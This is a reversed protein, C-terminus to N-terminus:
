QEDVEPPVVLEEELEEEAEEGFVKQKRLHEINYLLNHIDKQEMELDAASDSDQGM